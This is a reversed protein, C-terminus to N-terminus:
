SLSKRLNKIAKYVYKRANSISIDMIEKIEIYKKEDIYRMKLAEKQRIPLNEMALKVRKVLEMHSQDRVLNLEVSSEFKPYEIFINNLMRKFNGRREVQKLVIRRFSVILYYKVSNVQSLKQRTNWICLFLEQVCDELMELDRDITKGYNILIPNFKLFIESLAARSGQRLSEWLVEDELKEEQQNKYYGVLPLIKRNANRNSKPNKSNEPM